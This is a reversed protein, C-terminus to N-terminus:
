MYELCFKKANTVPSLVVIIDGPTALQLKLATACRVLLMRYYKAYTFIDWSFYLLNFPNRKNYM